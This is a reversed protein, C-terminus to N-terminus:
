SFEALKRLGLDKLEPTWEGAAFCQQAVNRVEAETTCASIQEAWTTVPTSWPPTPDVEGVTASSLPTAIGRMKRWERVDAAINAGDAGIALDVFHITAKGGSVQDNAPLHVVVAVDRRVEPMPLHKRASRDWVTAASAYLYEQVAIEGWGYQLDKGTKLDGIVLHGPSLRCQMGGLKMSIPKTVEFIRDYKGAVGYMLNVIIQEMWEARPKLGADALAKRYADMAADWPPPIYPTEGRDVAESFSHLATGLNSGARAAAANSAEEAISNLRDKDREPDCAAAALILDQRQSLGKVAMRKGWQGLAYTDSASKAFTTVRTWATKKGTKPHPILYRGWGDREIGEEDLKGTVPKGVASEFPDSNTM